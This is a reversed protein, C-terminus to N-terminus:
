SNTRQGNGVGINDTMVFALRVLEEAPKLPFITNSVREHDVLELTVPIQMKVDDGASRFIDHLGFDRFPPKFEGTPETNVDPTARRMGSHLIDDFIKHLNRFEFGSMAVDFISKGPM